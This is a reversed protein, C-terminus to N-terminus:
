QNIDHLGGGLRPLDPVASHIDSRCIEYGCPPRLLAWKTTLGVNDSPMLSALRMNYGGRLRRLSQRAHSLGSAGVLTARRNPTCSHPAIQYSNENGKEIVEQAYPPTNSGVDKTQELRVINAGSRSGDEYRKDALFALPQLALGRGGICGNEDVGEPVFIWDLSCLAGWQRALAPRVGSDDAKENPSQGCGSVNCTVLFWTQPIVEEQRKYEQGLQKM